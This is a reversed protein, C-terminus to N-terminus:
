LTLRRPRYYLKVSSKRNINQTHDQEDFIIYIRQKTNNQLKLPVGRPIFVPYKNSSSDVGYVLNPKQLEDVYIYDGNAMSYNLSRLSRFYDIPFFEIFDLDITGGGSKKALLSLYLEKPNTQGWLSPPLQIIGLDQMYDSDKLNIAPGESIVTGWLEVNLRLSITHAPSGAQLRAIARFYAGRSAALMAATLPHTGIEQETNGAWTIACYKGGSCSASETDVGGTASFNEGELFWVFNAIDNLRSVGIYIDKYSIDASADNKIELRIPADIVTDINAAAVEVYNCPEGVITIPAGASENSLAENVVIEGAVGGTAITYTGDNLSSGVVTITAGTLFHALGNGSDTIKETAAVFAIGTGTKIINPNYIPAGTTNNSVLSNSVALQTESTAEFYYRRTIRIVVHMADDNWWGVRMTEEDHDVYGAVIWSRYQSSAASNQLTLYVKAISPDYIISDPDTKAAQNLLTEIDNIEDNNATTSGDTVLIEITETVTADDTLEDVEDPSPPNPLYKIVQFPSSTLTKTIAGNTITLVYDMSTM